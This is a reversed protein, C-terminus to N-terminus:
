RTGAARWRARPRGSPRAARRSPRRSGSRRDRPAVALLRQGEVDEIAHGGGAEPQDVRGAGPELVRVEAVGQEAPHDLPHAAAAVEVEDALVHQGREPEGADAYSRLTAAGPPIAVPNARKPPRQSGCGKASGPAKEGIPPTNAVGRLRAPQTAQSASAQRGSADSATSEAAERRSACVGCLLM